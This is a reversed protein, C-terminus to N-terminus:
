EVIQRVVEQDEHWNYNSPDYRNISSSPRYKSKLEEVHVKSNRSFATLLVWRSPITLDIGSNSSIELMEDVESDSCNIENKIYAQITKYDNKTINLKDLKRKFHNKRNQELIQERTYKNYRTLADHDWYSIVYDIIHMMYAYM